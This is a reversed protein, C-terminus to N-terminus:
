LPSAVRCRLLTRAFVALIAALSLSPKLPPAQRICGLHGGAILEAEFSPGPSDLWSPRWRYSPAVLLEWGSHLPEVISLQATPPALTVWECCHRYHGGTVLWHVHEPIYRRIQCCNILSTRGGDLFFFSFSHHQQV